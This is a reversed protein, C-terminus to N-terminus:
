DNLVVGYVPCAVAALMAKLASLNRLRSQNRKVSVVAGECRSAILQADANGTAPPTRILIVEFREKVQALLEVFRPNALLEQPNPVLTGAPLIFLDPLGNVSKFVESGSRAALVDALGPSNGDFGFHLHIGPTRLNADILLTRLGMQSFLVSLNVLVFDAGNKEEPELVLLTRNGADLWNLLLQTRIDRLSELAPDYPDFGAIVLKSLGGKSQVALPFSFQRALALHLDDDSLLRLKVAVEGFKGGHEKQYSTISDVQESTLKKAELLIRGISTIRKENNTM